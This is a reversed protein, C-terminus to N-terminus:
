VIDLLPRAVQQPAWSDDPLAFVVVAAVLLAGHLLLQFRTSLRSVSLHAYSYGAFLLAQFFLLCTTWVAATGGYWPLIHKGILPQIQFLLFASLFVAPLFPTLVSFRRM